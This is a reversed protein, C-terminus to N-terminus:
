KTFRRVAGQPAGQPLVRPRSTCLALYPYAAEWPGTPVRVHHWQLVTQRRGLRDDSSVPKGDVSLFWWTDGIKWIRAVLGDALKDSDNGFREERRTPDLYVNDQRALERLETERLHEANAARQRLDAIHAIYAETEAQQIAITNARRRRVSGVLRGLTAMPNFKNESPM